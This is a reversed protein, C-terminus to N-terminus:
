LVLRIVLIILGNYVAHIIITPLVSKTKTYIWGLIIGLAFTGVIQVISGYGFHVLGFLLAAPLIGFRKTLVARFFLEETLPAGIIAFVLLLPDLMQIIETVRQGDDTLEPISLLHIIVNLAIVTGFLLILGIISYRINSPMNGPIGLKKLTFSLNKEYLFYGSILFLATHPAIVRILTFSPFIFYTILSIVSFIIFFILFITKTFM